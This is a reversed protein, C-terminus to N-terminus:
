TSPRASFPRVSLSTSGSIRKARPCSRMGPIGGLSFLSALGSTSRRGGVLHTIEGQCVYMIEVFDHRHRPFATFRTHSRISIPRADGVVKAAEVADRRDDSYLGMDLSSGDLIKQEEETIESLLRLLAADM